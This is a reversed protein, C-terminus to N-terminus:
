YGPFLNRLDDLSVPGEVIVGEPTHEPSLRGATLRAFAEAPMRVTTASDPAPGDLESVSCGDASLELLYTRTPGSTHVVVPGIKGVPKSSFGALMPVLGLVALVLYSKLAAKPAFAVGVDWRHHAAESLRMDTFTAIDVPWPMFGMDLRKSELDAESLAELAEVLRREWSVFESAIGAPPLANWRDWIAQNAPPNAAGTQLTGLAIASSSGLHSLVQAVTWKAAGSQALLEDEGFGAVLSSAEDHSQRYAAIADEAHQTM